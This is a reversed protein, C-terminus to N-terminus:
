KWRLTLTTDPGSEVWTGFPEGERSLTRRLWAADEQSPRNLRFCQIQLPSMHFGVLRGDSPDMSPFYMLVLDDRFQEYGSVGEYDNLFDGCGYLIPRNRYVEIGKPHHSSHGHIVDVGAEDILRHAFERQGSPVAYGWNGGWHISAVVVDGERKIAHVRDGVVGVAQRSLEPVFSVGPRGVAAAWEKPIGSSRAGFAFVLVRGETGGAELVAPATAAALDVGAGATEIGAAELTDLTERLGAPGWDLVHNNALVCCDVGAATLCPVNEPHMRYHIAKGRWHADSTTVSTELNIISTDPAVRHLVELAEGWIYSVEVPSPIPGNKEEALQVYASATRVHPEFLRPDSPHPLVQDIGRGTMVDGCLLLTVLDSPARSGPDGMPAPDLMDAQGGLARRVGLTRGTL